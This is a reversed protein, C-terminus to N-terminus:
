NNQINSRSKTIKAQAAEVAEGSVGIAIQAGAEDVAIVNTPPASRDWEKTIRVAGHMRRGTAQGSAMDRPHMVEFELKIDSPIVKGQADCVQVSYDGAAPLPKVVCAGDACHVVQAEGKKGKIQLFMDSSAAAFAPLMLAACITVLQIKFTKM